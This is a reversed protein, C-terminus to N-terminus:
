VGFMTASGILKFGMPGIFGMSWGPPLTASASAATGSGGGGNGIVGGFDTGGDGLDCDIMEFM